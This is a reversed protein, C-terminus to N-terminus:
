VRHSAYPLIAQLSASARLIKACYRLIRRPIAAFVAGQPSWGVIEHESPVRWIWGAVLAECFSVTEVPSRLLMTAQGRCESYIKSKCQEPKSIGCHKFVTHQPREVMAHM